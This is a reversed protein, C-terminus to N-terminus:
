QYPLLKMLDDFKMIQMGTSVSKICVVKHAQLKQVGKYTTCWVTPWRNQRFILVPIRDYKVAELVTKNWINILEGKGTLFSDLTIKKLHKLELYFANTLCHGEPAVATIDGAQRVAGKAVTARGGSMASRWYLDVSDGHSIWLSLRKCIEREFSSGKGKGGGQKM